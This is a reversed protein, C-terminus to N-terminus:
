FKSTSIRPAEIGRVFIDVVTQIYAETTYSRPLYAGQRLMGAYLTNKFADLACETNLDARVVGANQADALVAILRERVPRIVNAIMAQMSKPLVQGEAIFARAFGQKKELHSYYHRAYNEMSQRLNEKWSSHQNMLAIESELGRQLVAGLLQEKSKFHRFLTVENVGAQRAIQRTTAGQIGENSFTRAAADLIRQRTQEVSSPACPKQDLHLASEQM